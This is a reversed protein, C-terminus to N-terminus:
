DPRETHTVSPARRQTVLTLAIHSDLSFEDVETRLRRNSEHLLTLVGTPPDISHIAISTLRHVIAELRQVQRQTELLCYELSQDASRLVPAENASAGTSITLVPAANREDYGRIPQQM